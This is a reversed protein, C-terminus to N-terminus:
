QKELEGVIMRFDERQRLSDLDPDRKLHDVDKYAKKVAQHLFAVARAAYHETHKDDGRVVAASRNAVAAHPAM